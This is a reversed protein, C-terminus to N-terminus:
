LTFAPAANMLSGMFVDKAWSAVRLLIPIPSDQNFAMAGGLGVSESMPWEMGTQHWRYWRMMAAPSESYQGLGRVTYIPSLNVLLGPVGLSKGCQWTSWHRCCRM